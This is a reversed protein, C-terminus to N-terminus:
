KKAFNLFVGGVKLLQQLDLKLAGLLKEDAM